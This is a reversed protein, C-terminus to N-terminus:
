NNISPNNSSDTASPVAQQTVKNCDQYPALANIMLTTFRRSRLIRPTALRAPLLKNLTATANSHRENQDRCQRFIAEVREHQIIQTQHGIQYQQHVIFYFLIAMSIAAIVNIIVFIRRQRKLQYEQPM